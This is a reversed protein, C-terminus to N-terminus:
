VRAVVEAIDPDTRSHADRIADTAADVAARFVSEREAAVSCVAVAERPIANWSRGGDLAVLRFPVAALTERLARM